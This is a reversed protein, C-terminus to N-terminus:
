SKISSEFVEFDETRTLNHLAKNLVEPPAILKRETFSLWGGNTIVKASPEGDKRSFGNIIRFRSGDKSLGSAEFTVKFYDLLRLERYYEVFDSKVVPGFQLKLFDSNPFGFGAFYAMRADVSFDLYSTNRMHGNFDINVWGVQYTKEFITAM